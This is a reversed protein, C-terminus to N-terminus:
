LGSFQDRLTLNVLQESNLKGNKQIRLNFKQLLNCKQLLDMVVCAWGVVQYQLVRMSFLPPLSNFHFGM